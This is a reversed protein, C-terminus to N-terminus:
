QLLIYIHFVCVFIRPQCYCSVAHHHGLFCCWLHQQYLSAKVRILATPGKKRGTPLLRAYSSRRTTEHVHIFRRLLACNTFQLFFRAHPYGVELLNAGIGFHVTIRSTAGYCYGTHYYDVVRDSDSALIICCLGLPKRNIIKWWQGKVM